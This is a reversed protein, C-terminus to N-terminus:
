GRQKKDPRHQDQVHSITALLEVLARNEPKASEVAKRKRITDELKSLVNYLEEAEDEQVSGYDVCILSTMTRSKGWLKGYMQKSHRQQHVPIAVTSDLAPLHVSTAKEHDIVPIAISVKSKHNGYTWLECSNLKAKHWRINVLPFHFAAWSMQRHAVFYHRCPIGATTEMGCTCWHSKYLKTTTEMEVPEYFVLYQSVIHLQNQVQLLRFDTVEPHKSLFAGIGARRFPDKENLELNDLHQSFRKLDLTNADVEPIAALQTLEVEAQQDEDVPLNGPEYVANLRYNGSSGMEEQCLQTAYGSVFADLGAAIDPFWQSSLRNADVRTTGNHIERIQGKKKKM